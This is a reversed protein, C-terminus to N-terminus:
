NHAGTLAEGGLPILIAVAASVSLLYAAALRGAYDAAM